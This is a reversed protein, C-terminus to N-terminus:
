DVDVVLFKGVSIYRMPFQDTPKNKNELLIIKHVKLKRSTEAFSFKTNCSFYGDVGSSLDICFSRSFSGHVWTHTSQINTTNIAIFVLTCNLFKVKRCSILFAMMYCFIYPLFPSTVQDFSGIQSFWAGPDDCTIHWHPYSHPFIHDAPM